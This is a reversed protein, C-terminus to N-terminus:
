RKEDAGLEPCPLSFTDLQHLLEDVLHEDDEGEFFREVAFVADLGFEDAVREGVKRPGCDGPLLKGTFGSEVGRSGPNAKEGAAAGLLDAVVQGLHEGGRADKGEATRLAAPGRLSNSNM